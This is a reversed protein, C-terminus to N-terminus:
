QALVIEDPHMFGMQDAQVMNGREVPIIDSNQDHGIAIM